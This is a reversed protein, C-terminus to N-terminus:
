NMPLEGDYADHLRIRASQWRRKLTALSIGLIEAAEPQTLGKYWLLDFVERVEDPLRDVHEHFTTWDCLNHPEGKSDLCREIAEGGDTDHHAGHGEPGLHHRALDILERRIQTAALGFFQKESEPRVQSLSRHLRIMAGQLVDDTESWRHVGPYKRLMRRTLRRLRECARDIVEGRAAPDGERLRQLLQDLESTQGKTTGM